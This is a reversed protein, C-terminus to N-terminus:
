IVKEMTHPVARFRAIADEDSGSGFREFHSLDVTVFVAQASFRVSGDAATGQASM